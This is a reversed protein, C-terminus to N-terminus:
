AADALTRHLLELFRTREREIGHLAATAPGNAALRDRLAPDHWLRLAQQTIAEPTADRPVLCTDEHRCFSRAGVCDPVVAAVGLAMAELAPLFFGETPTPLLIGIRSGGMRDLFASRPMRQISTDVPIGAEALIAACARALAANKLGAIFVQPSPSPRRHSALEALDLANSIVEVPGNVIGSAHLAEAVEPGVCIRLARRRLFRYRPDDPVAHRVHQVLNVVPRGALDVGAADLLDWDLGAVFHCGAPCPADVRRVGPPTMEEALAIDSGPALYLLPTARDSAAVHGMYDFVKLHGGTFTKMARTFLVTVPRLM